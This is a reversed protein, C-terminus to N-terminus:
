NPPSRRLLVRVAIPALLSTGLAVVVMAGFLSDPVAWSGFDQGHAMIVMAIEARPILSAGILLACASGALPLTTLGGGLVKGAIGAALLALGLTIGDGLSALDVTLGIGIFFFPSLFQYLPNFLRDIRSEEPDRSFAFGAFIAGIAFSFGLFEAIAAISFSLGVVWLVPLVTPDSDLAARTLPKELYRAFLFCLGAFASFKVILWALTTGLGSLAGAELGSQLQPAMVFLVTMLLIGSIDDLEAVDVLLAGTRSNLAGEDQWVATSVGISTATLAAAAFLSPILALDLLYRATVFGIAGSFLVDGSWVFSARRLQAILAPLNSQLGVRFLLAIIGASALFQLGDHVAHPFGIWYRDASNLALGIGIYGVMAPLKLRASAKRLGLAALMTLGVILILWPYGNADGNM